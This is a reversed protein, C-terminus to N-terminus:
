VTGAVSLVGTISVLVRSGKMADERTIMREGPASVKKNNRKAIRPPGRAPSEAISPIRAPKDSIDSTSIEPIPSRMELVGQAKPTTFRRPMVTRTKRAPILM